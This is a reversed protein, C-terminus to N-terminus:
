EKPKKKKKQKLNKLDKEKKLTIRMLKDIKRKEDFYWPFDYPFDSVEYGYYGFLEEGAKLPKTSLASMISGWRPHELEHFLTNNKLFDHNIQFFHM